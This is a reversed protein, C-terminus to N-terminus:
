DSPILYPKLWALTEEPNSLDYGLAGMGAILVRDLFDAKQEAADSRRRADNVLERAKEDGVSARLARAAQGGFSSEEIKELFVRDATTM